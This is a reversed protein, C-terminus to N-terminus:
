QRKQYDKILLHEAVANTCRQSQVAYQAISPCNILGRKIYMSRKGIWTLKKVILSAAVFQVDFVGWSRLNGTPCYIKNAM